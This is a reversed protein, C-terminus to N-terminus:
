AHILLSFLVNSRHPGSCLISFSFLMGPAKNFPLNEDELSFIDKVIIFHSKLKNVKQFYCEIQNLVQFFQLFKGSFPGLYEDLLLSARVYNLSNQKLFLLILFKQGCSFSPLKHLSFPSVWWKDEIVMSFKCLSFFDKTKYCSLDRNALFLKKFMINLFFVGM